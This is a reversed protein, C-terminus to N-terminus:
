TPTCLSLEVLVGRYPPVTYEWIWGPRPKWESLMM